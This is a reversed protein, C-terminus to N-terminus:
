HSGSYKEGAQVRVALRNQRPPLPCTAFRTYACPPSYAKNFDLVVQGDRPLPAYLYRGAGYTGHGSTADRFIFFLEKADAAELVPELRLERGGHTFVVYGPATMKQVSGTVDALELTRPQGHPVFRGTVRWSADVPFWSLGKFGLRVPSQPDRVRIGLRGSRDIVQLRLRGVALVDPTGAADSRVEASEVPTGALSAEVGPAMRVTVRGGQREFVGARAPAAGAPLVVDNGPGAGFSNAGEKLWFLGALALWGGEARLRTERQTRWAQVEAAYDHGADRAQDARTGAPGALGAALVAGLAVHGWRIPIRREM